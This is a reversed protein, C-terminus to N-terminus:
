LPVSRMELIDRVSDAAIQYALLQRFDIILLVALRVILMLWTHSALRAILLKWSARSTHLFTSAKQTYAIYPLGHLCVSRAM